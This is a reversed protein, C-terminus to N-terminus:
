QASGLRRHRTAAAQRYSHAEPWPPPWFDQRTAYFTHFFQFGAFGTTALLQNDVPASETKPGKALEKVSEYRRRLREWWGPVTRTWADRRSANPWGLRRWLRGEYWGLGVAQSFGGWRDQWASFARNM